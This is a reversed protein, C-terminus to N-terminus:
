PMQGRVLHQINTKTPKLFTIIDDVMQKTNCNGCTFIDLALYNHEPWSHLSIHSESLLYLATMAGEPADFHHVNKNLLTMNNSTISLHIFYDFTYFKKKSLYITFTENSIGFLDVVYHTGLNM